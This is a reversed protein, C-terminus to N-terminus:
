NLGVLQFNFMLFMILKEDTKGDDKINKKDLLKQVNFRFHYKDGVLM